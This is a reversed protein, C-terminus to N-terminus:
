GLKGSDITTQYTSSVRNFLKGIPNLIATQIASSTYALQKPNSQIQVYTDLFYVYQAPTSGAVTTGLSPSIFSSPIAIHFSNSTTTASYTWSGNQTNSNFNIKKVKGTTLTLSTVPSKIKFNYTDAFTIVYSGNLANDMGYIAVRDAADGQDYNNTAANMSLGHPTATTFIIEGNFLTATTISYETSGVVSGWRTYIDFTNNILGSPINWTLTIDTGTSLVKNTIANGSNYITIIKASPLAYKPSWASYKVGDDSTVRYRFMYLLRSAYNNTPSNDVKESVPVASAIPITVKRIGSDAM